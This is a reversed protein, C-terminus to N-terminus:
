TIKYKNAQQMQKKCTAETEVLKVMETKLLYSIMLTRKTVDDDDDDDDCVCVCM